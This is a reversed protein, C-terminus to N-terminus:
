KKVEPVTAPEVEANIDKRQEDVLSQIVEVFKSFPQAGVVSVEKGTVNDRVITTPTGDVGATNGADIDQKIRKIVNTSGMCTDFQEQNTEFLAPIGDADKFGKGNTETHNFWYDTVAWFASPGKQEAVCEAIAAAKTAVPEHFSMPYHRWEWNVAGATATDVIYKPTEKFRKCFPCELDEYNILTFRAGPEGYIYRGDSNKNAKDWGKYLSKREGALKDDSISKLASKVEDQLTGVGAKKVSTDSALTTNIKGLLDNTLMQGKYTIFSFIVLWVLGIFGLALGLLAYVRTTGTFIKEKSQKDM